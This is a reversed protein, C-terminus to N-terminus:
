GRVIYERTSFGHLMTSPKILDLSNDKPRLNKRRAMGTSGNQWSYRRHDVFDPNQRDKASPIKMYAPKGLSRWHSGFRWKEDVWVNKIYKSSTGPRDPHVPKRGSEPSTCAWARNRAATQHKLRTIEARLSAIM